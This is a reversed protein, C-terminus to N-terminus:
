LGIYSKHFVDVSSGVPITKTVGNVPTQTVTFEQYNVIEFNDYSFTLPISGTWGPDIASRLGIRGASTIDSDKATVQYGVPESSGTWLKAALVNGDILCRMHVVTNAIYSGQVGTPNALTTETGSIRKSIRLDLNGNTLFLVRFVYFNNNTGDERVILGAQAATGSSIEPISVSFKAELDAKGISFLTRRTAGGAEQELHIGKGGSVSYDSNLGGENTWSEGTDSSGWGNSVTRTFTDRVGSAVDTLTLRVGESEIDFPQDGDDWIPYTPRVYVKLKTDTGSAFAEDVITGDSGIYSYESHEVEAIHYPNEPSCTFIIKRRHSYITETYGQV